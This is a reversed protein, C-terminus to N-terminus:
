SCLNVLLLTLFSCIPALTSDVTWPLFTAEVVATRPKSHLNPSTESVTRCSNGTQSINFYPCGVVWARSHRGFCPCSERLWPCSPSSQTSSVCIHGCTHERWCLGITLAQVQRLVIKRGTSFCGLSGWWCSCGGSCSGSLFSGSNKGSNEKDQTLHRNEM